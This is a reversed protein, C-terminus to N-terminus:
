WILHIQSRQVGPVSGGLVRLEHSAEKKISSCILLKGSASIRTGVAYLVPTITKVLVESIRYDFRMMLNWGWTSRGLLGAAKRGLLM